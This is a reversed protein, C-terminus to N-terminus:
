IENLFSDLDMDEASAVAKSLVSVPHVSPATKVMKKGSKPKAAADAQEAAVKEAKEIAQQIKTKSRGFPKHDIGLAEARERLDNLPPLTSVWKRASDSKKTRESKSKEVMLYIIGDEGMELSADGKLGERKAMEQTLVDNFPHNELVARADVVAKSFADRLGELIEYVTKHSSRDSPVSLLTEAWVPDFPLKQIKKM